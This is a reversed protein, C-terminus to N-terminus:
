FHRRFSRACRLTRDRQRKRLAAVLDSRPAPVGGGCPLLSRCGSRARVCVELAGVLNDITRNRALQIAGSGPVSAATQATLRGACGHLAAMCVRDVIPFALPVWVAQPCGSRCTPCGNATSRPHTICPECFVHGEECATRADKVVDTCVSCVIDPNPPQQTFLEVSHGM